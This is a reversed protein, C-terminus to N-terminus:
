GNRGIIQSQRPVRQAAPAAAAPQPRKKKKKAGQPAAAGSGGPAGAPAANAQAADARKAIAERAQVEDQTTFPIICSRPLAQLLQQSNALTTDDPMNKGVAMARQQLQKFRAGDAVPAQRWQRANPPLERAWKKASEVRSALTPHDSMMAPTKDYGADIMDQFFQGFLAPDWGARTYFDFGLKDAENEDKRTFGMNIFQGLAAGGGAGLAAYQAGHEKGGAVYGAGGLAAAAALATYQRNMGKAVHRAYVHGYEHAMVAALEEENKCMQFLANYVYMHEGGTTFANVTKSNVFHFKMNNGFMWKNDSGKHSSPGYGQASLDEAVDIIRSGVQQLYSALEPDEVIAPELQTNMNAAQSIVAADTACGAGAGVLTFTLILPLLLHKLMRM